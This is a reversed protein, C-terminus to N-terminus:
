EGSRKEYENRTSRKVQERILLDIKRIRKESLRTTQAMKVEHGRIERRLSNTSTEITLYPALEDEGPRTLTSKSSTIQWAQNDGGKVLYGRGKKCDLHHPLEELSM